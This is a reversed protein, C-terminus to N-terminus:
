RFVMWVYSQLVQVTVFEYKESQHRLLWNSVLEKEEQLEPCKSLSRSFPAMDSMGASDNEPPSREM